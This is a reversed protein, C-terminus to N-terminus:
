EPFSSSEVRYFRRLRGTMGEPLVVSQFSGDGTFGQLTTWQNLNESARLQVTVGPRTVVRWQLSGAVFALANVSPHDLFFEQRAGTPAFVPHDAPAREFWAKRAQKWVNIDDTVTVGSDPLAGPYDGEGLWVLTVDQYTGAPFDMSAGEGVTVSPADMRFVCNEVVVSGPQTGQWKFIGGPARGIGDLGFVINADRWERQEIGDHPQALVHAVTDRIVTVNNSVSGPSQHSLFTYCGDILCNVIEGPILADNEIADDRIYRMYANELRWSDIGTEAGFGDEVNEFYVNSVNLDGTCNKTLLADGDWMAKVVRWPLDRSQIGVVKAGVLAPSDMNRLQLPYRQENVLEIAELETTTPYGIGAAPDWDDGNRLAFTPPRLFHGSNGGFFVVGNADFCTGSPVDRYGPDSGIRLQDHWVAPTVPVDAAPVGAVPFVVAACCVALWRRPIRLSISFLSPM